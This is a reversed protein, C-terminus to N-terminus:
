QGIENNKVGTSEKGSLSSDDAGLIQRIRARAIEYNVAYRIANFRSATLDVQAQLVDLGVAKGNRYLAQASDYAEQNTAVTQRTTIAGQRANEQDRWATTLDVKLSDLRDRKRELAQLYQSSAKATEAKTLGGEFFPFELFIGALWEGKTGGIDRSREAVDGQLSVEPYYAGKASKAQLQRQEIDLDLRKIEPNTKLAEQWLSGMDPAPAYEQPLEGRVDVLVEEKLGMSRALIERALRIANGAEVKAQEAESVQSQARFSDLRTVKGAKFFAETLAAFARRQELAETTVQLNEKAEILQYFAETVTFAVEDATRNAEERQAEAGKAAARASYYSKGGEFLLQKAFIGTLMERQFLQQNAPPPGGPPLRDPALREYYSNLSLHPLLKSKEAQYDATLERIRENAGSLAPNNERALALCDDLSLSQYNREQVTQMGADASMASSSLLTFCLLIIVFFGQPVARKLMNKEPQHPAFHILKTKRACM